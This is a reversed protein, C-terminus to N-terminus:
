ATAMLYKSLELISGIKAGDDTMIQPMTKAGPFMALLNDRSIYAETPLKDQGVDLNVVEFSVGARKLLHKAQECASCNPKSYVIM